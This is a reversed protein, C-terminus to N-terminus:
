SFLTRIKEPVSIKKFSERNVFVHVSTVKAFVIKNKVDSFECILEISSDGIKNVLLTTQYYEGAKMPSLYDCSSHRLPVAFETNQFWFSWGLNSQTLYEELCKHALKFTNAFYLIGQPDAEDFHIFISKEFFAKM